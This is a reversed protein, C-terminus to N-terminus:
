IGWLDFVSPREDWHERTIRFCHLIAASTTMCWVNRVLVKIVLPPFSEMLPSGKRVPSVTSTNMRRPLFAVRELYGKRPFIITYRSGNLLTAALSQSDALRDHQIGMNPNPPYMTVFFQCGALQFDNFGVFIPFDADAGYRQPFQWVPQFCSVQIVWGM